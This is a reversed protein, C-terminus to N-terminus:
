MIIERIAHFSHCLFVDPLRVTHATDAMDGSGVTRSIGSDDGSDNGPWPQDSFVVHVVLARTNWDVSWLERQRTPLASEGVYALDFGFGWSIEKSLLGQPAM